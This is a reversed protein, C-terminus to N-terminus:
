TSTASVQNTVYRHYSTKNAKTHPRNNVANSCQRDTHIQNEILSCRLETLSYDLGHCSGKQIVSTLNQIM